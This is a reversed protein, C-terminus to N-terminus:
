RRLGAPCHPCNIKRTPLVSSASPPKPSITFPPTDRVYVFGTGLCSRCLANM